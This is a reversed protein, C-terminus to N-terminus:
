KKKPAIEVARRLAFGNPYRLDAYRTTRAEQALGPWVAAFRAARPKWDGRGLEVTLGNALVVEWAGRASLRLETVPSGLPELVQVVQPFERTVMAATGEPGRLRPLNAPADAAFVEGERNVLERDNWRAFAEYAQFTIEVADPFQRRVAVDRVWPVRRAAERVSELNPQETSKVASALAELDLPRLREADGAFVVRKFPQALAYQYGHWGAVALVAGMAIAAAASVIRRGLKVPESM